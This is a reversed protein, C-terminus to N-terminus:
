PRMTQHDQRGTTMGGGAEAEGRWV